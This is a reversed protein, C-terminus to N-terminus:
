IHKQHGDSRHHGGHELVGRGRVQQLATARSVLWGASRLCGVRALEGGDECGVPVRFRARLHRSPGRENSQAQEPVSSHPCRAACLVAGKHENVVVKWQIHTIERRVNPDDAERRNQFHWRIADLLKAQVVCCLALRPDLSLEVRDVIADQLVDLCAKRFASM